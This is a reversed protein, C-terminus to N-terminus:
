ISEKKCLSVRKVKSNDFTIIKDAIDLCKQDRSILIITHDISLEKLTEIFNDQYESDLMSVTEDFMMIKSDKLLVRAIAIAKKLSNPIKENPSNIYSDYKNKLGMIEDHIGLKKCVSVVAKFNGNVLMLNDKISLDFFHPEKRVLSVLSYYTEDDINEFPINDILIEGKHKRNLKMLLDFVGTKGTGPSGTIVTISNCKINFTVKNLIPDKKNGYLVDKFKINGKYEKNTTFEIDDKVQRFELIRNLRRSSVKFDELGVIMTGIIDYNEIVKGYYTYIVLITGIEMQGISFLYIGYIGIGYRAIEIIILIIQKIVVSFTNYKSHADLYKSGVEKVRENVSKFVYFGKVEKITNFVENTIAIKKDLNYKRKLNLKKLKGSTLLLVIILSISLIVTIIFIKFNITYFYYYIILFELLRVIHIISDSLFAVVIDIDNNVINTFEGIKFRSLSYLSNNVVSKYIMDTYSKYMKGYLKYYVHQNIIASFYYGITIALTILVMKYGMNFDKGTAYDIARGWLIPIVLLTGRYIVSIVFKLFIQVKSYSLVKRTEQNIFSSNM